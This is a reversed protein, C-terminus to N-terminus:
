REWPAFFKTMDVGEKNAIGSEYGTLNGNTGVIRHCPIIISIHNRNLAGGVARACPKKHLRESVRKALEGYTRTQGYPVLCLEDLVVTSFESVHLKLPLEAIGPKEGAFYRDIWSKALAFVPLETENANKRRSLYFGHYKRRRKGAHAYWHHIIIHQAFCLEGRRVFLLNAKQAFSPEPM